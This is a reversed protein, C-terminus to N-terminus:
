CFCVNHYENSAGRRPAELSYGCCKNENLFLFIIQGGGRVFCVNEFHVYIEKEPTFDLLFMESTPRFIELTGDILIEVQDDIGIIQISKTTPICGISYQGKPLLLTTYPRDFINYFEKTLSKSDEVLKTLLVPYLIKMKFELGCKPDMYTAVSASALGSAEMTKPLKHLKILYGISYARWCHAKCNRADIKICNDADELAKEFDQIKLFCLSRNSYLRADIQGSRSSHIGETYLQIADHIRQEKFAKNGMERTVTPDVVANDNTKEPLITSEMCLQLKKREKEQIPITLSTLDSEQEASLNSLPIAHLMQEQSSLAEAQRQCISHFIAATQFVKITEFQWLMEKQFGNKQTFSNIHNRLSCATTGLKSWLHLEGRLTEPGRQVELVDAPSTSKHLAAHLMKIAGQIVRFRYNVDTITERIVEQVLRHVQLSGERYRQFLSFRTLIDTVQKVSVLDEMADKFDDDDIEPIGKNILEEPIDDAHFFAAIYMMFPAANGLGEEESQKRIFDFNIQWTTKIALREKSVPLSTTIPKQSLKLRIKEFRKLYEEFSCKLTKIHAAAQEMALPLGDLEEVLKELSENSSEQGTRKLM